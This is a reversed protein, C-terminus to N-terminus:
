LCDALRELKAKRGGTFIYRVHLRRLGRIVSLKIASIDDGGRVYEGNFESRGKPTYAVYESDSPEM